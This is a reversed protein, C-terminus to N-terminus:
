PAFKFVIQISVQKRGEVSLHFLVEMSAILAMSLKILNDMVAGALLSRLVLLGNLILHETSLSDLFFGVSGLLFGQVGLSTPPVSSLSKTFHLSDTRQLLKKKTRDLCSMLSLIVCLHSDKIHTVVAILLGSDENNSAEHSLKHQKELGEFLGQAHLAFLFGERDHALINL